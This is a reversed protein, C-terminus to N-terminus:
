NTLDEGLYSDIREYNGQAMITKLTQIHNRYDHRWGRMKRYMTEVEDYHRDVLDNQFRTVKYDVLRPLILLWLLLHLLLLICLIVLLTTM